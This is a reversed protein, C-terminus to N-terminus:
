GKKAWSNCWGNASVLGNQFLGCKGFEGSQGDAKLGGQLYLVCNKCSQTAGDAGAKKTWKATDVKSADHYYGLTKAMPDNEDLAKTPAAQASAMGPNFAVRNLIPLAAAGAVVGKLFKRRSNTNGTM